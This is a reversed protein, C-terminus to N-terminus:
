QCRYATGLLTYSTTFAQHSIVYITDANLTKANNKLDNVAGQMMTDNSFFLYSYWHGENGTVTGLYQCKKPDFYDDVRVEIHQSGVVPAQSPTTCGSLVFCAASAYFLNKM